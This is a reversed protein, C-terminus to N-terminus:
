VWEVAQCGHSERTVYKHSLAKELKKQGRGETWAWTRRGQVQPVRKEEIVGKAV